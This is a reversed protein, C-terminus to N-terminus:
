KLKMCAGDLFVTSRGWCHIGATKERHMLLRELGTGLGVWSCTIRWADDLPHPGMSTSALELGDPTVVDLGDGYVVSNEEELRYDDIGAAKMVLDAFEKLVENRKELPTGWEVLNLMTFEKLHSRGESEKRFCSGIEFVRLPLSQSQILQRSVEYLNPALMPRLATKKDVWFVQEYLPNDPTITMKELMQASVLTPTVVQTFGAQCLAAALSEQLSCLSPRHTEQMLRSLRTRNEKVARSELERFSGDRRATTSFERELISRDIGLESLRNKQAATYIYKLGYENEM